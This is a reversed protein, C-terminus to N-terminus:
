CAYKVNMSLDEMEKAKYINLETMDMNIYEDVSDDQIVM